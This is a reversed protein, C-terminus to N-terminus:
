KHSELWKNMFVASEDWGERLQKETTSEILGGVGFIKAEIVIEASRRIKGEGVAEIRLTGENRLKEAMTSPIQKWRWVAAAGAGSLRGEETYGFGSGFIKKLPGPVNMKPQGRVTRVVEGGREAQDVIAWEPFGLAKRYLEENFEKDLFVRWFTDADCNIIHTVTFKAMRAGLRAFDPPRRAAFERARVWGEAAAAGRGAPGERDAALAAEAARVPEERAQLDGKWESLDVRAEGARIWRREPRDKFGVLDVDERTQTVRAKM